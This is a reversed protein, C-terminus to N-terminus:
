KSEFDAFVLESIEQWQELVPLHAPHEFYARLDAEDDFVARLGYDWAQADATLNFGHEWGRIQAIRLPLGAMAAVVREVREDDRAVRAKFKFLVLHSIM